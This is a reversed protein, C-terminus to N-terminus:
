RRRGHCEELGRAARWSQVWAGVAIVSWLVTDGLRETFNQEALVRLIAGGSLFGWGLARTLGYKTPTFVLAAAATVTYLFGVSAVILPLTVQFDLLRSVTLPLAVLESVVLAVLVWDGFGRELLFRRM